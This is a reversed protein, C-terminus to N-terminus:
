HAGQQYPERLNEPRPVRARGIIMSNSHCNEPKVLPRDGIPPGASSALPLGHVFVQDFLWLVQPLYLGPHERVYLRHQNRQVFTEHYVVM